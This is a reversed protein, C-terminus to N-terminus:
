SCGSTVMAFFFTSCFFGLFDLSESSHENFLAKWPLILDFPGGLGALDSPELDAAPDAAIDAAVVRGNFLHGPSVECSSEQCIKTTCSVAGVFICHLMGFCNLVIIVLHCQLVFALHDVIEIAIPPFLGPSAEM